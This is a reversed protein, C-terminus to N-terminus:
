RVSRPHPPLTVTPQVHQDVNRADARRSIGVRALEPDVVRRVIRIGALDALPELGPSWLLDRFAAEAVLSTGYKLHDGITRSFGELTKLDLRDAPDAGTAALREQIEDRCLAPWAPAGALAHALTTKGAPRAM